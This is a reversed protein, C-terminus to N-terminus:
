IDIVLDRESNQVNYLANENKLFFQQIQLDILADEIKTFRDEIVNIIKKWDVPQDIDHPLPESDNNSITPSEINNLMQEEVVENDGGKEPTMKM